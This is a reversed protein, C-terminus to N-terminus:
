LNAIGFCRWAGSALRQRIQVVDGSQLPNPFWYMLSRKELSRDLHVPLAAGVKTGNLFVTAPNENPERDAAPVASAVVFHKTLRHIDM